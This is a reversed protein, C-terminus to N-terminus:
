LLLDDDNLIDEICTELKHVSMDSEYEASSCKKNSMQKKLQKIQETQQKIMKKLEGEEQAKLSSKRDSMKKEINNQEREMMITKTTLERTYQIRRVEQQLQEKTSELLKITEEQDKLQCKLKTSEIQAECLKTNLSTLESAMSKIQVRLEGVEVDVKNKEKCYTEQLKKIVEKLKITREKQAEVEEQKDKLKRKIVALEVLKENLQCQLDCIEAKLIKTIKEYKIKLESTTSQLLTNQDQESKLNKELEVRKKTEEALTNQICIIDQDKTKLELEAQRQSDQFKKAIETVDSLQNQLRQFDKLLTSHDCELKELSVDLQDLKDYLQKNENKLCENDEQIRLVQEREANYKCTLENNRNILENFMDTQKTKMSDLRSVATSMNSQTKNNQAVVDEYDCLKEELDRIIMDMQEIMCNNHENNNASM